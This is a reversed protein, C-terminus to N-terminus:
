IDFEVEPHYNDPPQPVKADDMLRAGVTCLPEGQGMANNDLCTTCRMLHWVLQKVREKEIYAVKM